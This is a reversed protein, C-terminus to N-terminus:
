RESGVFGGRASSAATPAKICLKRPNPVMFVLMWVLVPAFLTIATIRALHGGGCWYLAQCQCWNAAPSSVWSASASHSLCFTTRLRWLNKLSEEFIRWLLAITGKHGRSFDWPNTFRRTHRTSVDKKWLNVGDSLRDQNHYTQAGQTTFYFPCVVKMRFTCCQRQRRRKM